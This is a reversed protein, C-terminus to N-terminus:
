LIVTLTQEFIPPIEEEGDFGKREGERRQAGEGWLEVM